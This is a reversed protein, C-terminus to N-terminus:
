NIFTRVHEFLYIFTRVLKAGHDSHSALRQIRLVPFRRDETAGRTMEKKNKVKKSYKTLFLFVLTWDNETERATRIHTHIYIYINYIEMEM